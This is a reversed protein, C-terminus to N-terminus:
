NSLNLSFLRYLFLLDTSTADLELLRPLSGGAEKFFPRVVKGMRPLFYFQRGLRFFIGYLTSLLREWFGLRDNFDLFGYPVYSFPSPNGVWDGMWHTGGFTCFKIIPAKFKHGFPLFYDSFFAEM